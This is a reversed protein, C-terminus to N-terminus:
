EEEQNLLLPVAQPPPSLKKKLRGGSREDRKGLPVTKKTKTEGPPSVGGRCGEVSFIWNGRMIPL